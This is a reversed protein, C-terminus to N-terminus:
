ALLEARIAVLDIGKAVAWRTLIEVVESRNSSSEVAMQCCLEWAGDSLSLTRQRKASDWHSSRQLGGIPRTTIVTSAVGCTNSTQPQEPM